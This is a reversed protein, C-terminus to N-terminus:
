PVDAHVYDTPLSDPVRDETDDSEFVNNKLLMTHRQHQTDCVFAM